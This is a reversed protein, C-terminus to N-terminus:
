MGAFPAFARSIDSDVSQFVADSKTVADSLNTLDTSVINMHQEWTGMAAVFATYGAGKWTAALDAVASRLNTTATDFQTVNNHFKTATANMTSSTGLVKDAMNFDREKEDDFVAPFIIWWFSPLHYDLSFYVSELRMIPPTNRKVSFLASEYALCPPSYAVNTLIVRFYKLINYSSSLDTLTSDAFPYYQALHKGSKEPSRRCASASM